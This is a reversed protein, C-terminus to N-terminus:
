VFLDLFYVSVEAMEKGARVSAIDNVFLKFSPLPPNLATTLLGFLDQRPLPERDKRFCSLHKQNEPPQLAALSFSDLSLLQETVRNRIDDNKSHIGFEQQLQGDVKKVCIVIFFDLRKESSVLALANPADNLLMFKNWSISVISSGLTVGKTTPGDLYDVILLQYASLHPRVVDLETFLKSRDISGVGALRDVMTQDKGTGDGETDMNDTKLLIVGLLLRVLDPNHELAQPMQSVFFEAVLSTCTAVPEITKAVNSGYLDDTKDDHHDIIEIVTPALALQNDALINHNIISIKLRGKSLLAMLDIDDICTIKAIDVNSQTFLLEAEPSLKLNARQVNFVPM